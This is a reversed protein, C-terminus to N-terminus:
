SQVWQIALEAELANRLGPELSYMPWCKGTSDTAEPAQVILAGARQEVRLGMLSVGAVQVTAFALEPTVRNLTVREIPSVPKRSVTAM